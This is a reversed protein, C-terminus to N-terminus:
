TKKREGRSMETNKTCLIYTCNINSASNLSGRRHRMIYMINFGKEQKKLENKRKTKDEYLYFGDVKLEFSM